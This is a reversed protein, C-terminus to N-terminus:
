EKEIEIKPNQQKGFYSLVIQRNKKRGLSCMELIEYLLIFIDMKNLHLVYLLFEYLHYPCETIINYNFITNKMENGSKSM